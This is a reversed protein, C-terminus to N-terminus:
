QLILYSYNESLFVRIGTQDVLCQHVRQNPFVVPHTEMQSDRTCYRKVLLVPTNADRMDTSQTSELRVRINEEASEPKWKEDFYVRM